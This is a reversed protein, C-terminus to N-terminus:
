SHSFHSVTLAVDGSGVTDSMWDPKGQLECTAEEFYPYRPDNRAAIYDMLGTAPDTHTQLIKGLMDKLRLVIAPAYNVKSAPNQNIGSWVRFSNLVGPQHYPQLRFFLYPGDDRFEHEECVHHLMAHETQLRRLFAIAQARTCGFYNMIDNVGDHNVFCQKYKHAKYLRDKNDLIGDLLLMTEVASSMTGDPLQIRLTEGRAAPERDEDAATAPLRLRPDLPDAQSAVELRYRDLAAGQPEVSTCKENSQARDWDNELLQTLEDAGGIYKSNFFVQPISFRDTLNMMDARRDPNRDLDIDTFPIGRM